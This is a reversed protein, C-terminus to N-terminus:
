RGDAIHLYQGKNLLARRLRKVVAQETVGIKM